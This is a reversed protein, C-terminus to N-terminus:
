GAGREAFRQMVLAAHKAGMLFDDLSINENPAHIKHSPHDIGSTAVPMGLVDAFDYMPGTGAMSPQIVPQRGYIEVCTEAILKAWPSSMSTRSPNVGGLKEIEIDSFGNSDLHRRLKELIDDPRQEPVLRFVLKATVEAPLVTKTGPGQYGGWIGDINCTPEMLLRHRLAAGTLENNFYANGFTEAWIDAEDPLAAIADHEEVTTERVADYFGPILM